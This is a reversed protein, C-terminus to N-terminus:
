SLLNCSFVDTSQQRGTMWCALAYAAYAQRVAERAEEPSGAEGRIHRGSAALVLDFKNGRIVAQSGCQLCAKQVDQGNETGQTWKIKFEDM